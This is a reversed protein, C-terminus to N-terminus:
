RSLGKAGKGQSRKILIQSGSLRKHVMRLPNDIEKGKVGRREKIGRQLEFADNKVKLFYKLFM